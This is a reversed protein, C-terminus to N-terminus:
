CYEHYLGKLLQRSLKGNNGRPLAPVRIVRAPTRHAGLTGLVLARLELELQGWDPPDGRPVIFAALGEEGSAAAYSTVGADLVLPHAELLQEIQNPDIFEGRADKFEEGKRSVLILSGEGEQRVLDGTHLWGDRLVRDTRERDRWYGTMLQDSRVALEGTEGAGVPVGRDDVIRVACGLPIGISGPPEHRGPLFGACLGGTETLGYYGLVPVGFGSEFRAALSASLNSGTCLVLRLSVLAGRDLHQASRTFQKVM